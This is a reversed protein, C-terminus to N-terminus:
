AARSQGRYAMVGVFGKVAYCIAFQIWILWNLFLLSVSEGGTFATWMVVAILTLFTTMWAVEIGRRTAVREIERDREDIVVATGKKRLFFMGCAVFGMFGFAGLAGHGLWPFCLTVLLATGASVILETWAVKEMANM